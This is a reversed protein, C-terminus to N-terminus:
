KNEIILMDPFNVGCSKVSVVVQGKAAVLNSVETLQLKEPPGYEKCLMAKM